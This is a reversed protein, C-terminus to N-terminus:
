SSHPVRRVYSTDYGQSAVFDLLWQYSSEPLQPEESLIYLYRRSPHGIVMTSYDPDVHLIRLDAAFPWIVQMRWDANTTTDDIDARFERNRIPGDLSGTNYAYVVRLSGDRRQNFEYTANYTDGDAVTPLYGQVYWVGQTIRSIDVYAPQRLEGHDRLSVCASLMALLPLGVILRRLPFLRNM